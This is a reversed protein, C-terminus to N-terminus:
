RTGHAHSPMVYRDDDFILLGWNEMAGRKGPVAVLDYKRHPLTISTYNEYHRLTRLALELPVAM